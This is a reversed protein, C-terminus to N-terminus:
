EQALLCGRLAIYGSKSPHLMHTCRYLAQRNASQQQVWRRAGAENAMCAAVRKAGGGMRRCYATIPGASSPEASANERVGGAASSRGSKLETEKGPGVGPAPMGFGLTPEPVRGTVPFGAASLKARIRICYDVSRPSFRAEGHGARYKMVAACIDGGALRWAEALYRTGYAINVEPRGLTEANGDFGMMAATSPLVQMLGVEGVEGRAGPDYASEVAMVADVIEFPVGNRRAEEGALRRYLDKGTEELLPRALALGALGITTSLSLIVALCRMSISGAQTKRAGALAATNQRQAPLPVAVQLIDAKRYRDAFVVCDRSLARQQQM